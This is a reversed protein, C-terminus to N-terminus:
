NGGSSACSLSLRVRARGATAAYPPSCILYDLQVSNPSHERETRWAPLLPTIMAAWVFKVEHIMYLVGCVMLLDYRVFFRQFSM